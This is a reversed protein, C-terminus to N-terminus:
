QVSQYMNKVEDLTFKGILGRQFVYEKDGQIRVYRFDYNLQNNGLDKEYIFGADGEEVVKSFYRANKVDGLLDSKINAIDTSTATGAQIQVFYNGDAKITVDQIFGLNESVVVADEPAKIKIPLGYKMLDLDNTIAVEEKCSIFLLGLITVYLFNTRM